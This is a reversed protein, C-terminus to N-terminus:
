GVKWLAAATITGATGDATTCWVCASPGSLLPAGRLLAEQGAAATRQSAKSNRLRTSLPPPSLTPPLTANRCRHGCFLLENNLGDLANRAGDLQGPGLRKRISQEEHCRQCLHAALLRLSLAHLCTCAPRAEPIVVKQM